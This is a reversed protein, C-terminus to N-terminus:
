ATTSIWPRSCRCGRRFSFRSVDGHACVKDLYRELHVLAEAAKLYADSPLPQGTAAEYAMAAQM